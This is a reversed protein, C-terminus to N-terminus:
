EILRCRGYGGSPPELCGLQGSLATQSLGACKPEHANRIEAAAATYSALTKPLSASMYGVTPIRNESQSVVKWRRMTTAIGRRSTSQKFRCRWLRQRFSRSRMPKGSRQSVACETAPWATPLGHGLSRDGPQRRAESHCRRARASVPQGMPTPSVGGARTFARRRHPQGRSRM